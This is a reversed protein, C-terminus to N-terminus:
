ETEGNAAQLEPPLPLAMIESFTALDMFPLLEDRAEALAPNTAAKICRELGDRDVTMRLRYKTSIQQQPTRYECAEQMLRAAHYAISATPCVAGVIRHALNQTALANAHLSLYFVGDPALTSIVPIYRYQRNIVAFGPLQHVVVWNSM